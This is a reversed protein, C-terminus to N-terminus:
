AHTRAHNIAAEWERTKTMGGFKYKRGSATVTIHSWGKEIETIDSLPISFHEKSKNTDAPNPIFLGGTSMGGVGQLSSAKFVLYRGTLFLKGNVSNMISRIYAIPFAGTDMIVSEGAPINKLPLAAAPGQSSAFQAPQRSGGAISKGCGTCFASEATLAAGCNTCYHLSLAAGCSGCFKDGPQTLSGCKNCNM